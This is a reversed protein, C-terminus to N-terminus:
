FLEKILSPTINKTFGLDITGRVTWTYLRTHVYTTNLVTLYIGDVEVILIRDYENKEYIEGVKYTM